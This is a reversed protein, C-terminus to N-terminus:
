SAVILEVDWSLGNCILACVDERSLISLIEGEHHIDGCANVPYSLGICNM